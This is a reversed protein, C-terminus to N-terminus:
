AIPIGYEDANFTSIQLKTKHARALGGKTRVKGGLNSAKLCDTLWNQNTFPNM